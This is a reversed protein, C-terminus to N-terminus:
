LPSLAVAMRPKSDAVVTLNRLLAARRECAMDPHRLDRLGETSRSLAAAGDRQGTPGNTVQQNFMGSEISRANTRM